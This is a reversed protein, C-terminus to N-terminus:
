ACLLWLRLSVALLFVSFGCPQCVCAPSRNEVAYFSKVCGDPPRHHNDCHCLRYKHVCICPQVGKSFGWEPAAAHAGMLDSDMDFLLESLVYGVSAIHNSGKGRRVPAQGAYWGAEARRPRVRCKCRQRSRPCNPLSNPAGPTGEQKTRVLFELSEPLFLGVLVAIALPAIGGVVFLSQWGYNPLLYSASLGAITSGVAMGAYMTTTLSARLRTPAYECGFTLANPIAGGLGVGTLLRCVALQEVNTIYATLFTAVGFICASIILMIKRGFRDALTGLVLAGFLPGAQSVGVAVGLAGPSSNLSEAIKPLAVGIIALDFGDLLIVCFCLSSVWMQYPTFGTSDFVERVSVTRTEMM